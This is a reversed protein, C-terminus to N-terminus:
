AIKEKREVETKPSNPVLLAAEAQNQAELVSPDFFVPDSEAEFHPVKVAVPKETQLDVARYVSAMGGEAVLSEIRYHDLKDGAQLASM